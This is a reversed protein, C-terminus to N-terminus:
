QFHSDQRQSATLEIMEARRTLHNGRRQAQLVEYVVLALDHMDVALGMGRDEYLVGNHLNRKRFLIRIHPHLVTIYTGTPMQRVIMHNCTHRIIIPLHIQFRAVADIHHRHTLAVILHATITDIFRKIAILHSLTGIQSSEKILPAPIALFVPDCQGPVPTMADKILEVQGISCLRKLFLLNRQWFWQTLIGRQHGADMM